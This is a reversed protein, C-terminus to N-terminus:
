IGFVNKILEKNETYSIFEYALDQTKFRIPGVGGKEVFLGVGSGVNISYANGDNMDPYGGYYEEILVIIKFLSKSIDKATKLYSEDYDHMPFMKLEVSDSIYDHVGFHKMHDRWTKPVQGDYKKNNEDDWKKWDRFDRSPFVLCEGEPKGYGYKDLNMLKGDLWGFQILNDSVKYLEVKGKIVSYFTEGVHNKLIPVLNIKEMSNLIDM